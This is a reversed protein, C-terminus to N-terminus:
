MGCLHMGVVVVVNRMMMMMPIANLSCEPLKLMAAVPVRVVVIMAHQNMAVIVLMDIFIRLVRPLRMDVIVGVGRV